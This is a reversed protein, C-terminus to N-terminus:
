NTTNLHQIFHLVNILAIDVAKKLNKAKKEDFHWLVLAEVFM